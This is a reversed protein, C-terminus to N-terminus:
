VMVIMTVVVVVMLYTLEAVPWRLLNTVPRTASWAGATLYENYPSQFLPEAVGEKWISFTRRPGLIPGPDASDERM